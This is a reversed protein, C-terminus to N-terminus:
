MCFAVKFSLIRSLAGFSSLSSSGVVYCPVTLIEVVDSIGYVEFYKGTEM